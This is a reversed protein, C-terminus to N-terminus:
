SVASVPNETGRWLNATVPLSITISTGKGQQSSVSISGEHEQVIRYCIAMGLGTGSPMNTRFPQFMRRQDEDSMGRGNDSFVINYTGDDHETAVHLTGGGPMAQIANKAVNWFVQRIQNADGVLIFTPPDIDPVIRHAAELEPSNALLELTESLSAAIDFESLSREKPKVFQLFDAISRNLRDSEKLIISMLRREQATLRDSSRLAQVSGSIAALPNRIEHAIGASLEGVAAMRDKMRLQAELQKMETLDQFIFTMGYPTGELSRLPTLAYGIFRAEDDPGEGAREGRAIGSSAVSARFGNWEDTDFLGISTIHRGVVETPRRRLIQCAAPNTFSIIGEATLTLVGSPISEIVNENLARLEALNQLNM